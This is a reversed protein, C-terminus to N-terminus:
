AHSAWWRRLDSLPYTVRAKRQEGHPAQANPTRIQFETRVKGPPAGVLAAFEALTYQPELHVRRPAPTSMRQMWNRRSDAQTTYHRSM